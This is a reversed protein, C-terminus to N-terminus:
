GGRVEDILRAIATQVAGLDRELAARDIVADPELAHEWGLAREVAREVEALAPLGIGGTVLALAADQWIERASQVQEGSATRRSRTRLLARALAARVAEDDADKPL